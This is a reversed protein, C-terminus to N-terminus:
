VGSSAPTVKPRRLTLMGLVFLITSTGASTMCFICIAHIVALQLTVLGASVVFGVTTFLAAARLVRMRKTDLYVIVAVMITLYYLAGLLAIPVGFVSAYSSTLVKECNSISSCPPIANVFHNVTLYAADLFGLVAVCLM